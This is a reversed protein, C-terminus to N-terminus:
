LVGTETADVVGRGVGNEGCPVGVAAVGRVLVCADGVVPEWTGEASTPFGAGAGCATPGGDAAADLPTASPLAECAVGGVLAVVACVTFAGVGM